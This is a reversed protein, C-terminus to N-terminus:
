PLSDLWREVDTSVMDPRQKWFAETKGKNEFRYWAWPKSVRTHKECLAMLAAKHQRWLAELQEDNLTPEDHDLFKFDHGSLLRTAQRLSLKMDEIKALRRLAM